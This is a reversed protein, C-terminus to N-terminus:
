FGGLGPNSVARVTKVRQKRCQGAGEEEIKLAPLLLSLPLMTMAETPSGKASGQMRHIFPSWLPGKCFIPGPIVLTVVGKRRWRSSPEPAEAPDRETGLGKLQLVSVNKDCPLVGPEM